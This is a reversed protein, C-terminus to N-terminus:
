SEKDDVFFDIIKEEDIEEFKKKIKSKIYPSKKAFFLALVLLM